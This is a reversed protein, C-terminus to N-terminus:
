EVSSPTASCLNPLSDAISLPLSSTLTSSAVQKSVLTPHITLSPPERWVDVNFRTDLMHWSACTLSLYPRHIFPVAECTRTYSLFSDSFPILYCLPLIEVYRYVRISQKYITATLCFRHFRTDYLREM